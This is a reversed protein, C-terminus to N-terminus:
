SNKQIDQKCSRNKFTYPLLQSKFLFKLISVLSRHEGFTEPETRVEAVLVSSFVNYFYRVNYSVLWDGSSLLLVEQFTVYILYVHSVVYPGVYCTDHILWLLLGKSFWIEFIIVVLEIYSAKRFCDTSQIRLHLDQNFNKM